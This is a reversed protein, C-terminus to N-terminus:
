VVRARQKSTTVYLDDLFSFVRENPNLQSAAEVLADHQALAFLAPMLPDGQEGGEAQRVVHTQGAADTWLFRSESGYLLGVVPLLPRLNELSELKKFFAARKVHDFAGVGDLSLVVTEPDFDTLFQLAHALAETGAKTQLAYQFPATAELFDDAFQKALAKCVLRRLVSGAVIGRVKGNAKKLATLRGLRLASAVEEPVEARAFAELLQVLLSWVEDDELCVRLHEYRTGALDQTSGKGAARLAQLVVHKDLKVEVEPEFALLHPPVEESLTTPRLNPDTLEELTKADGPALGSSTLLVRARRVERWRVRTEAQERRKEAAAEADLEKALPKPASERAENLLELWEGQNFRRLRDHFVKKGADGRGETPKLLM